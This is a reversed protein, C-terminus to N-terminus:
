FRGPFLRSVTVGLRRLEASVLILIVYKDVVIYQIDLEKYFFLQKVIIYIGERSYYCIM